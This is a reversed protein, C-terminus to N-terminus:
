SKKKEKTANVSKINIENDISPQIAQVFANELVNLITTWIDTDPNNLSGQFPIKTAVQDKPQNKFIQGVTGAFAEWLKRFVNDKRDEKGLVDLDQVLPKVYGTFKGKDAAVETYMGFRGKNVDIKAYAQFFDNLLVLNTNRIEANLDFTPKDKLPNIKMEFKLDGEYVKGEATVTAPLLISSDYSNKLNLALVHLDTLKIDVKPKSFEDVYEINGNKIEFRNIQLPMFDDLLKKFHTSDNRLNKPEVKDKTFKLMPQEFVLEGVISGHFLAKWEVSLDILSASFFHTESRKKSDIKNLYIDNIKYAGRILALDIDRIHGHYGPMEALTKNAYHLVVYPLILRIVILLTVIPLTIKLWKKM